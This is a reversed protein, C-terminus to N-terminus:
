QTTGMRLEGSNELCNGYIEQPVNHIDILTCEPIGNGSIIMTWTGDIRKAIWYAQPMTGKAFDNQIINVACGSSSELPPEATCILEAKQLDNLIQQETTAEENTIPERIPQKTNQQNRQFILVIVVVFSIGILGLLILNRKMYNFHIVNSNHNRITKIM